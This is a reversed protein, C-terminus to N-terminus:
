LEKFKLKGNVVVVNVNSLFEKVESLDLPQIKEYHREINNGVLDDFLVEIPKTSHTIKKNNINQNPNNGENFVDDACFIFKCDLHYYWEGQQILSNDVIIFTEFEEVRILQAM